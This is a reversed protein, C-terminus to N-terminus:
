AQIGSQGLQALVQQPSSKLTNVRVVVATPEDFSRRVQPYASPPVIQKLRELFEEPIHKQM